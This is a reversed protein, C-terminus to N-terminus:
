YDTGAQLDDAQVMIVTMGTESGKSHLEGPSFYAGQGAAIPVRVRDAGMVWGEGQVVLFLQAFGAPHEGIQGNQDFHVCYVYAEGRGSGLRVNSAAVSDYVDIPKAHARSFEIIQM